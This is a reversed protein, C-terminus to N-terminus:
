KAAVKVGLDRFRPDKRLTALEPAHTIDATSYGLRICNKLLQLATDRRGALEYALAENFLQEVTPTPLTNARRLVILAAASEGLKAKYLALNVIAELNKPNVELSEATLDAAKQWASRAQDNMGGIMQYADGLNRWLSPHLPHLDVAKHYADAAQRYKGQWFLATGLNTYAEGSPLLSISRNLVQEADNLQGTSLYVAGLNRWPLAAQPTLITAERFLKEARGYNAQDICFNGWDNLVLWDNPRDKSLQEYTQEVLDLKGSRLYTEALSMQAETNDPDFRTAIRSDSIAADYLGKYLEVKARSSYGSSLEPALDLAKNSNREALELAAVDRTLHYKTTYAESLVAWARAFTPDLDLAKRLEAIAQDVSPLGYGRLLGRGRVYAAYADANVTDGAAPQQLLDKRRIDLLIAAHDAMLGALTYLTAVPSSFKSHRLLKGTSGETLRLTLVMSERLHQLTASLVLNAGFLGLAQSVETVNQRRLYRAPVIFLDHELRETRALQGIVSELVGNLLSADEHSEHANVAPLVAVRRPRPVPYLRRDIEERESWFTGGVLTATVGALILRRRTVVRPQQLAGELATVADAASAFRRDPDGALCRSIVSRLRRTGANESAAQVDVTSASDPRSGVLMEHLVVGFSYVDSRPTAAGGMRVEPAIYSPTGVVHDADTLSPEESCVRALGFDTVVAREGARYRELFVNSPKLDRHVLGIEHIADLGAAIERSIRMAAELALPGATLRRGLTEGSLLKMTLFCIEGGPGPCCFMEYVPCVNPHSISRGLLVEHQFRQRVSNNGAYEARITKVAIRARDLRLDEAEYVEGMGGAGLLRQIVFRQELVDGPRLVFREDVADSPQRGVGSTKTADDSAVKPDRAPQPKAGM